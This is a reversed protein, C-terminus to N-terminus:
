SIRIIDFALRGSIGEGYMVGEVFAPGVLSFSRASSNDAVLERLVFPVKAGAILVM